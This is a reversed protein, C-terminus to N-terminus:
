GISQISVESELSLNTSMLPQSSHHQHGVFELVIPESLYSMSLSQITKPTQVRYPDGLVMDYYIDCM